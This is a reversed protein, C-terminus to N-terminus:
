SKRKRKRQKRQKEQWLFKKMMPLNSHHGLMELFRKYFSMMM